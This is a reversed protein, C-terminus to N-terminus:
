LASIDLEEYKAIFPRVIDAIQRCGGEVSSEINLPMIPDHLSKRLLLWGDTDPSDFNIRVGEYNPEELSAFSIEGAKVADTLESIIRDGLAGFDEALIPFRVERSEAPKALGSILTSIGRGEKHLLATKIVIKTALYAGDDLFYNEKYAAHGSTEIALQSDTGQECLENAKNIVNKYGRKFRLHKLGLEQELFATLPKGTISDTVVTTGPFKDAILAAALAVIADRNIENGHEDVASARDVDTDFILGLNTKAESVKACISAIAEKNEPNPAHNPFSGDPELFQSSSVDAGLPELVHSAYFGGAGNGADVTISLGKLPKDGDGVNETILDRLHKCYVSMLDVETVNNEAHAPMLRGLISNSEAFNIIDAIDAKDLGGNADFFKMGNRNMPLHSATIMVSGDCKFEPFVTAMFMAPTSALGCVLIKCGYGSLANAFAQELAPGSLRSDRGVAVSLESPAKGTKLTLLYLFGKALREVAEETLNINEGPINDMAIGRIDSGNQLKSYDYKM